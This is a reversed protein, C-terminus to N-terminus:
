ILKLVQNQWNQEISATKNVCIECSKHSKHKLPWSDKMKESPLLLKWLWADLPVLLIKNWSQLELEAWSSSMKWITENALMNTRHRIKDCFFIAPLLGFEETALKQCQQLFAELKWVNLKPLVAFGVTTAPQWIDDQVMVLWIFVHDCKLM